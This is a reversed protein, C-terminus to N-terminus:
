NQKNKLINMIQNKPANLQNILQKEIDAKKIQETETNKNWEFPYSM